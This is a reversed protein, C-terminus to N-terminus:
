QENEQSARGGRTSVEDRRRLQGPLKEATPTCGRLDEALERNYHEGSIM